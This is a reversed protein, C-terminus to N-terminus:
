TQYRDYGAVDFSYGEEDLWRVIDAMKAGLATEYDVWDDLRNAFSSM